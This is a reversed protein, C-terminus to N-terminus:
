SPMAHLRGSLRRSTEQERARESTRTATSGHMSQTGGHSQSLLSVQSVLKALKGALPSSTPMSTTSLSRYYAEIRSHPEAPQARPLGRQALGM